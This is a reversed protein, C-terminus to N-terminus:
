LTSVHEVALGRAGAVHVFHETMDGAGRSARDWVAVGLVAAGEALAREVIAANTREYAHRAADDAGPEHLVVLTGAARADAVVDDFLSGWDGPRDTVSRARFEAPPFPLVVVRRLGLERAVRLAILDAGCAASCVLTRVGRADFLQRVRDGVVDANALPFRPPMAGAADVRRGALAVIM